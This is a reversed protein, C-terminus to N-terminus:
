DWWVESIEFSIDIARASHTPSGVAIFDVGAAAYRGINDLGIRGSAEVKARGGIAAVVRAVAEPSMNDCLVVDAGAAAAAQAVIEDDAEVEIDGGRGQELAHAMFEGLAGSLSLGTARLAEIHNDKVLIGDYLGLRHNEGGGARVAEKELLRLGPLTKRTDRVIVGPNHKRAAEVLSRIATAIGSLHCLLNLASREAVLLTGLTAQAQGLREGEDFRDGDAKTWRLETKEDLLEFCYSAALTGALVGPEGAVFDGRAFVESERSKGEAKKIARALAGRLARWTPDAVDIEPLSAAKESIGVDQDEAVLDELLSRLAVRSAASEAPAPSNNPEPDAPPRSM